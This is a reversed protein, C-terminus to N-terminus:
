SVFSVEGSPIEVLRVEAEAAAHLVALPAALVLVLLILTHRM